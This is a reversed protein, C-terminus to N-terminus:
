KPNVEDVIFNSNNDLSLNAEYETADGPITVCPIALRGTDPTFSASCDGGTSSTGADFNVASETATTIEIGELDAFRGKVGWGAFKETVLIWLENGGERLPLYVSDFFGMTGLFRYDRKQFEDNMDVILKGNLYLSATDSFGFMFKKTQATESNINVRAYIANTTPSWHAIRSINAIGVYDSDLVTWELGERVAETLEPAAADPAQFSQTILWNQVLNPDNAYEVEEPTGVLVPPEDAIEYQFNSVRVPALPIPLGYDGYIGIRGAKTDRINNIFLIPTTMDDVYVEGQDESVVLKIHVWQDYPANMVKPNHGPGYYLQVANQGDYIPFYHLGYTTGFNNDRSHVVQYETLTHARFAIGGFGKEIEPDYAREYIIDFEVTGNVFGETGKALVLGKELVLAEQGLYTEFKYTADAFEWKDENEANMPISVVEASVASTALLGAMCATLMSPMKKFM